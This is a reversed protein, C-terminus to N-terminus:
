ELKLEPYLKRACDPCIDHSFEAHSRDSIYSEMPQWNGNLDRIRKCSACVSLIGELIKLKHLLRRTQVIVFLAILVIVMTEFLSERWNIATKEAGLLLHPIDLLEDIWILLVLLTFAMTEYVLIQRGPIQASSKTM